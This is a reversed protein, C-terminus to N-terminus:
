EEGLIKEVADFASRVAGDMYGPFNEATEAGAIVFKGGFYAERFVSHGNNQHPLIASNYPTSTFAEQSWITEQYTLYNRAEDGFYKGFQQMIAEIRQEKTAAHYAGNMFGKLAYFSDEVNSHDYVESMPGVSSFITGSKGAERWFPKEYTLAVKISEGMWTHTEDAIEAFAAPLEPSFNINNALLKPPLTSIVFDARYTKENTKVRFVDDEFEISEVPQGLIVQEKDLQKFLTKIIRGTGGKVRFSPDDNPPLTVLQPPSTSIPEYIAQEGLEQAFVGIQLAELLMTLSTHKLGLWTAGMEVPAENNKHVTHIRGGIRKRAEIVTAKFGANRLLFAATLGSLGAGIIVVKQKAKIM